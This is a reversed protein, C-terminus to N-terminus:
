LAFVLLSEWETETEYVDTRRKTDNLFLVPRFVRKGEDEDEDNNDQQNMDQNLHSVDSDVHVPIHLCTVVRQTLHLLVSNMRKPCRIMILTSGTFAGTDVYRRLVGEEPGSLPVHAIVVPDVDMGVLQCLKTELHDDLVGHFGFSVTKQTVPVLAIIWPGIEDLNHRGFERYSEM